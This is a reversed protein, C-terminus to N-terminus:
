NWKSRKVINVLSSIKRVFWHTMFWHRTIWPAGNLRSPPLQPPILLIDVLCGAKFLIDKWSLTASKHKVLMKVECVIMWQSFIITYWLYSIRNQFFYKTEVTISRMIGHSLSDHVCFIKSSKKRKLWSLHNIHM